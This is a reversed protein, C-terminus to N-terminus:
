LIAWNSDRFIYYKHMFSWNENIYIFSTKIYEISIKFFEYLKHDLTVCFHSNNRQSQITMFCQRDSDDHLNFSFLTGTNKKGVM